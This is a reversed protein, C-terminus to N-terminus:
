FLVESFDNKCFSYKFNNEELRIIQFLTTKWTVSVSGGGWSHLWVWVSHEAWCFSIKLFKGLVSSCYIFCSKYFNASDFMFWLCLFSWMFACSHFIFFYSLFYSSLTVGCQSACYSCQPGLFTLGQPHKLSTDCFLCFHFQPKFACHIKPRYCNL